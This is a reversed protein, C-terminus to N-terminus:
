GIQKWVGLLITTRGSRGNPTTAKTKIDNFAQLAKIRAVDVFQPLTYDPKRLRKSFSTNEDWGVIACGKVSFGEKDKAHYLSLVRSKTNYLAVQTAGIITKPDHSKFRGESEQILFGKVLKEPDVPKRKRVKKPFKQQQYQGINNVSDEVFKHYKKLKANSLYSYAEREESDEKEVAVCLIQLSENLVRLMEELANKSPGISKCWRQLNVSTKADKTIEEVARDFLGNFYCLTEYDHIKM